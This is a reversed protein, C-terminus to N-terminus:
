LSIVTSPVLLTRITDIPLVNTDNLTRPLEGEMTRRTVFFEWSEAGSYDPLCTCSGNLVSFIAPCGNNPLEESTRRQLSPVGKGCIIDSGTINSLASNVGVALYTVNDDSNAEFWDQALIEAQTEDGAYIGNLSGSSSGSRSSSLSSSAGSSSSARGVVANWSLFLWVCLLMVARHRSKRPAGHVREIAM